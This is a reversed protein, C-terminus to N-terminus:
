TVRLDDGTRVPDRRLRDRFFEQLEAVEDSEPHRSRASRLAGLEDRVHNVNELVTAMAEAAERCDKGQTRITVVDGDDLGMGILQAVIGSIGGFSTVWSQWSAAATCGTGKSM